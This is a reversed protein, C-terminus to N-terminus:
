AAVWVMVAVMLFLVLLAMTAIRGSMAADSPKKKAPAGSYPAASESTLPEVAKWDPGRREFSTILTLAAGHEITQSRSTAATPFVFLVYGSLADLQARYQAVAEDEVGHGQKLFESLGIEEVDSLRLVQTGQLNLDTGPLVAQIVAHEGGQDLLALVEAESLNIAFVHLMPKGNSLLPTSLSM